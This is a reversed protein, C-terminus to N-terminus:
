ARGRGSAVWWLLVVMAQVAGFALKIWLPMGLGSWFGEIMAAVLLMAAAGAVLRFLAPAAAAVSASRSLGGTEVLAHGLRLGAAGALVIGNLEWAAHGVVFALLNHGLGAAGLWGGVTGLVLGNYVLYFVPGLGFLVGTAFCRLAIGVNNYVYFGAMTVDEGSSREPSDEAYMSEMQALSEDSLVELAFAPSAAGGVVGLALPGYFLAAAVLLYVVNRRVEQPVDVMLFRLLGARARHRRGYLRQHARATLADLYHELDAGLARARVRALDTSAARHGAAIKAWTEGDPQLEALEADLATWRPRGQALLREREEARGESM